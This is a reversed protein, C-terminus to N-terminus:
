KVSAWPEAAGGPRQRTVEAGQDVAIQDIAGDPLTIQVRVPGHGASLDKIAVTPQQQDPYPHIVYAIRAPLQAELAFVATPVERKGHEPRQANPEKWSPRWREAAIFGQVTPETQGKVIKVELGPQAAAAVLCNPGPDVTRVAPGASDVQAEDADFHWLSEYRHRGSGTLQDIVLWYSPKVFVVERRHVVQVDRQPGYGEDYQGAAYDLRPGSRWLNGAPPQQVVYTERDCKRRCQSLGDVLVTNHAPTDITYKRWPSSDYAYNGPDALMQKGFAHVVLSLKDEHQHGLGFPGADMLLYRADPEWGSRMVMQGAYPFYHSTHDPATGRTGDSAAWQFLGDGYLEAAIEM